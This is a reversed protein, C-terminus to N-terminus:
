SGTAFWWLGPAPAATTPTPRTGPSATRAVLTVVADDPLAFASTFDLAAGALGDDAGLHLSGLAAKVAAPEASGAQEVARVLAVVADHSPIDATQAVTAFAADAYSNTVDQDRAALRLATFFVAAADGDPALARADGSDSGVTFYSGSLSGAAGLTRAFAPSLAQPTLFIPAQRYGLRGQIAAALEAQHTASAAIVICRAADTELAGVIADALDAAPAWEAQVAPEFGGATVGDATVLFAKACGEAAM